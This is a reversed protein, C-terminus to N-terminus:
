HLQMFLFDCPFGPILHSHKGENHDIELKCDVSDTLIGFKVGGSKVRGSCRLEGGTKM